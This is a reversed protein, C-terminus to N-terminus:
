RKRKSLVSSKLPKIKGDAGVALVGLLVDRPKHTLACSLPTDLLCLFALMQWTPHFRVMPASLTSVAEM